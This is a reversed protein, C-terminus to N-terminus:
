LYSKMSIVPKWMKKSTLPLIRIQIQVFYLHIRSALFPNPNPDPDVVAKYDGGFSPLTM